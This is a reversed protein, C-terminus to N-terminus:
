LRFTVRKPSVWDAASCGSFCSPPGSLGSDAAAAAEQWTLGDTVSTISGM